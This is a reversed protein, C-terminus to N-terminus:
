IKGFVKGNSDSIFNKGLYAVFAAFAANTATHLISNWDVTFLDFNPQGVVGAFAIVVGAFVATVAGKWVDNMKLKYM